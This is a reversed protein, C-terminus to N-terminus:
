YQDENKYLEKFIQRIALFLEKIADKDKDILYASIAETIDKVNMLKCFDHKDEDKDLYKLEITIRTLLSSLALAMTDYDLNENVLNKYLDSKRRKAYIENYVKLQPLPNYRNIFVLVEVPITNNGAMMTIYKKIDIGQTDRIKFLLNYTMSKDLQKM